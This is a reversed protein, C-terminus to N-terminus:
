CAVSNMHCLRFEHHQSYEHVLEEDQAAVEMATLQFIELDPLSWPDEQREPQSYAQM